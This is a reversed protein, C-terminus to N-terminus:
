VNTFAGAATVHFKVPFLPQFLIAMQSCTTVIFIAVDDFSKIGDKVAVRIVQNMM